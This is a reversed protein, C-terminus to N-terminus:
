EMGQRRMWRRWEEVAEAREDPSAEGEFDFTLGTINYLSEAAEDRVSADKDELLQVLRPVAQADKLYGVSVLIAGVHEGRDMLELLQRLTEPEEFPALARSIRQVRWDDDSGIADLLMEVLLKRAPEGMQLLAYSCKMVMAADGALLGKAVDVLHEDGESLIEKLPLKLSEPLAVAAQLQTEDPPSSLFPGLASAALEWAGAGTVLAFGGEVGEGSPVDVVQAPINQTELYEVARELLRKDRSRVLEEPKAPDDPIEPMPPESVLTAGCDACRKIEPTYEESCIPCWPM